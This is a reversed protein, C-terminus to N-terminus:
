AMYQTGVLGYFHTLLHNLSPLVTSILEVINFLIKLKILICATSTLHLPSHEVTM